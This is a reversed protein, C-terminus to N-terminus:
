YHTKLLESTKWKYIEKEGKKADGFKLVQIAPSRLGNKNSNKFINRNNNM